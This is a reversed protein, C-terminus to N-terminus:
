LCCRRHWQTPSQREQSQVCGLHESRKWRQGLSRRDSLSFQRCGVFIRILSIMKKRPKRKIGGNTTLTLPFFIKVLQFLAMISPATTTRQGTSTRLRLCVCCWCLCMAWGARAAFCCPGGSGAAFDSDQQAGTEM